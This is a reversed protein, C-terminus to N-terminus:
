ATKSPDSSRDANCRRHNRLIGKLSYCIYLSPNTSSNDTSTM